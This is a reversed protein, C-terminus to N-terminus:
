PITLKRLLLLVLRPLVRCSPRRRGWPPTGSHELIPFCTDEPSADERTFIVISIIPVFIKKGIHLRPQPHPDLLVNKALTSAWVYLMCVQSQSWARQKLFSCKRIGCSINREHDHICIVNRVVELTVKTLPHRWLM